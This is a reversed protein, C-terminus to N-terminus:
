QFVGIRCNRSSHFLPVARITDSLGIEGELMLEGDGSKAQFSKLRATGKEIVIRGGFKGLSTRDVLVGEAFMATAAPIKLRAKGDGVSCGDCSVELEGQAHAMRGRPVAIDLTGSLSGSMPLNITDKLGPLAALQVGSVKMKLTLDGKAKAYSGSIRGGFAKVSFDFSKRDFLYGFPSVSVTARDIVVRKGPKREGGLPAMAPAKQQLVVDSATVGFLPSPGLDRITLDYDSSASFQAEIRDKVKDYPFTLYIVTLFAVLAFLVYGVYKLPGRLKDPIQPLNLSM